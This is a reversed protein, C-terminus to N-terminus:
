DRGADDQPPVAAQYGPLPGIGVPRALRWDAGLDGREDLLQSGLVAGPPVLPDLALEDLETVLYARGRDAPHELRQPDGRCRHPVSVHAPPLEQVRLSHRHEGCIEEVDVARDGELAQVAQEHDLDAGAVHVDEPDCCV